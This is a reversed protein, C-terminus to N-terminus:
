LEELTGMDLIKIERRSTIINSHAKKIVKKGKFEDYNILLSNM